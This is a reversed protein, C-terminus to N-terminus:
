KIPLNPLNQSLIYLFFSAFNFIMHATIAAYLNKTKIVIFGLLVGMIMPMISPYIKGYTLHAIGFLFATTLIAIYQGSTSDIKELLFGRFFIEESISQFIIIFLMTFITLNGALDEINSLNKQDVGLYYLITGIGIVIILMAIAAVVGWLFATDIKERKLKLNYLMEKITFKNVLFYWILPTGIFLLITIISSFLIVFETLEINVAQTSTLVGFFSLIPLIFLIFFVILLIILALIHSPKKVNFDM